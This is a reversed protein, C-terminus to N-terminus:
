FSYSRMDIETQNIKKDKIKESQFTKRPNKKTTIEVNKAEQINSNKQFNNLQKKHANHMIYHTISSFLGGVVKFSWGFTQYLTSINLLTSIAMIIIKSVVFLGLFGSAINGFSTFWGWMEHMKNDVMNGIVNEDLLSQLRLGQDVYALGMSKRAINKQAAQIEQPLTIHKQLAAMTQHSYIGSTMLNETSKYSWTWTTSPKLTQPKKIERMTPAIGYWESDLRFAAPLLENCDTQTGYYQLTNTKPAMFYTKNNYSVPLENYCATQQSYYVNVPKCKLLYIVEGAKIAIYGPGDGM